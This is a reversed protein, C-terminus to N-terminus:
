AFSRETVIDFTADGPYVAEISRLDTIGDHLNSALPLLDAVLCIFVRMMPAGHAVGRSNISTQDRRL